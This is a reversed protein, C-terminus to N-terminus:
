SQKEILAVILSPSLSLSPLNSIHFTSGLEPCFGFYLLKWIEAGKKSWYIVM